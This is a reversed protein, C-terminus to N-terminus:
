GLLPMSQGSWDTWTSKAVDGAQYALDHKTLEPTVSDASCCALEQRLQLNTEGGSSGNVGGGEDDDRGVFCEVDSTRLHVVRVM